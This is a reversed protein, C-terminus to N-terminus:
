EFGLVRPFDGPNLCCFLKMSTSVSSVLFGLDVHRQKEKKNDFKETEPISVSISLERYFAPLGISSSSPPSSLSSCFPSLSRSISLSLSLSLPFSLSLLFFPYFLILFSAAVLFLNQVDDDDNYRSGRTRRRSRM